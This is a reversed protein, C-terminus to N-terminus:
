VTTLCSVTPQPRQMTLWGANHRTISSGRPSGRIVSGNLGSTSM